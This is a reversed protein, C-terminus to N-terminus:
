AVEFGINRAAHILKQGRHVEPGVAKAERDSADNLLVTRGLDVLDITELFGDPKGGSQVGLFAQAIVCDFAGDGYKLTKAVAQAAEM